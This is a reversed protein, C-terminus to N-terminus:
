CEKVQDPHLLSAVENVSLDKLLRELLFYYQAEDSKLNAILSEDIVALKRALDLTSLIVVFIDHFAKDTLVVLDQEDDCDM